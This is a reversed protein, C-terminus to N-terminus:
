LTKKYSNHKELNEKSSTFLIHNFSHVSRFPFYIMLALFPKFIHIIFFHTCTCGAGGRRPQRFLWHRAQITTNNRRRPCTRSFYFLITDMNYITYMKLSMRSSVSDFLDQSKYFITNTKTSTLISSEQKTQLFLPSMCYLNTIFKCSKNCPCVVLHLYQM